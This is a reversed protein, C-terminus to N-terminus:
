QILEGSRDAVTLRARLILLERIVRIGARAYKAIPFNSVGFLRDRCIVPVTRVSRSGRAAIVSIEVNPAVDDPGILPIASDLFSGHMLRFGCNPDPVVRDFVLLISLREIIMGIKRHLPDQRYGRRGRVLAADKQRWLLDFQSASFQGDSDCQAIHEAKLRLAERYGAMVARGHGENRQHIVRIRPDRVSEEDLLPGSGDYSGDDVAILIAGAIPDLVNKKWDDFVVPISKVENFVPM